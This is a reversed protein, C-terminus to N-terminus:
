GVTFTIIDRNDNDKASFWNKEHHVFEAIPYVRVLDCYYFLETDSDLTILFDYFEQATLSNDVIFDFDEADDLCEDVWETDIILGMDFTKSNTSITCLHGCNDDICVKLNGHGQQILEKLKISLDGANLTECEEWDEPDYIPENNEFM